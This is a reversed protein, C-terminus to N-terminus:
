IYKAFNNHNPTRRCSILGRRTNIGHKKFKWAQYNGDNLKEVSFEAESLEVMKTKIEIIEAVDPDM